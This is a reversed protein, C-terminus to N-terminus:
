IPAKEHMLLHARAQRVQEPSGDLNMRAEEDDMQALILSERIFCRLALNDDGIVDEPAYGEHEYAEAALVADRIRRRNDVLDAPLRAFVFDIIRRFAPSDLEAGDAGGLPDPAQQALYRIARYLPTLYVGDDGDPPYYPEVGSEATMTQVTAPLRSALNGSPAARQSEGGPFSIKSKSM